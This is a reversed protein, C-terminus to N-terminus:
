DCVIFMDENAPKVGITHDHNSKIICKNNTDLSDWVVSPMDEIQNCLRM